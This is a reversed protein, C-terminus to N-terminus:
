EQAHEDPNWDVLEEPTDPVDTTSALETGGAAPGAVAVVLAAPVLVWFFSVLAALGPYVSVPDLAGQGLRGGVASGLVLVVLGVIVAAIAGANMRQRFGPGVRRCWCGTVVGVALPLVFVVLWWYQAAGSPFVTLLPLDPLPAHTVGLPGLTFSGLSIGAGVAFSWGILVANPVYLLSVLVRGFADGATARALGDVMETLSLGIGTLVVVAGAAAAGALALLGAHLGSWLDDDLRTWLLYILGCRNAVGATSAVAAVLGTWLFAELPVVFVTGSLLLSLVTGIVAHSITMVAIVRIAHEPSRLRSRRAVQASGVAILLMVAITPLLPLVTLRAGTITLPVQHAALWGPLAALMVTALSFPAHEATALVAAILGAVVVYGALVVAAVATGLEAWQGIRSWASHKADSHPNVDLASM